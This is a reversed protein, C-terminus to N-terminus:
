LFSGRLPGLGGGLGGGGGGFFRPGWARDSLSGSNLGQGVSHLTASGTPARTDCRQLHGAGADRAQLVPLALRLLHHM